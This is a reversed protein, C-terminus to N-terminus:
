KTVCYKPRYIYPSFINKKVCYPSFKPYELLSQSLNKKVFKLFTTFGNYEDIIIDINEKLCNRISM